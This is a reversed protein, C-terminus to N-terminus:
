YDDDPFGTRRIGSCQYITGPDDEFELEFYISDTTVGTFSKGLDELVKGNTVQVKIDYDPVASVLDTGAFTASSPTCGSKVMYSWFNGQDSIWFKDADNASTNYTYLLTHGVGYWDDVVGSGDDFKYTVWWEGALPWIPSYVTEADKPQDLEYLKRCGTTGILLVAILAIFIKNKM